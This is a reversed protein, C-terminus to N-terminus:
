FKRTIHTYGLNELYQRTKDPDSAPFVGDFHFGAKLIGRCSAQNEPRAYIFFRRPGEARSVMSQLLKGYLGKGRHAPATVFHFLIGTDSDAMQFAFDTERIYFPQRYALWGSALVETESVLCWFSAGEEIRQLYKEMLEIGFKGCFARYGESDHAAIHICQLGGLDPQPCHTMTYFHLAQHKRKLRRRLAAASEKLAHLFNVCSM